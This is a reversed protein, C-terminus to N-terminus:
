WIIRKKGNEFYTAVKGKITADTMANIQYDGNKFKNFITYADRHVLTKYEKSLEIRLSNIDKDDKNKLYATYKDKYYKDIKKENKLYISKVNIEITKLLEPFQWYLEEFKTKLEEDKANNILLGMYLSGQHSFDFDDKTLKIGVNNFAELIKRLCNNVGNLDEKSYESLQYLYYDLQMKEYSTNYENWENTINCKELKEFTTKIKSNEKLEDFKKLRSKIEQEVNERLQKNRKVEEQLYENKKKRNEKNNSPLVEYVGKFEDFHSDLENRM